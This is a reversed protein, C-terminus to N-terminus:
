LSSQEAYAEQWSSRPAEEPPTTDDMEDDREYGEYGGRDDADDDEDDDEDIMAHQPCAIGNRELVSKYVDILAKTENLRTQLAASEASDVRRKATARLPHASEDDQDLFAIRKRSTEESDDMAAEEGAPNAFPSAGPSFPPPEDLKVWRNNHRGWKSGQWWRTDGEKPEHRYSAATPASDQTQQTAAAPLGQTVQAYTLSPDQERADAHDTRKYRGRLAGQWTAAELPGNTAVADVRPPLTQPRAHAKRSVIHLQTQRQDIVVMCHAVDPPTSSKVAISAKGRFVRRSGDVVTAAWGMQDIIQQMAAETVGTPLGRVYFTEKPDISLDRQAQQYDAAKVRVAYSWPSNSGGNKGVIGLHSRLSAVKLRVDDLSMPETPSGPEKLWIVRTSETMSRPTNLWIAGLGSMKLYEDLHNNKVRILGSIWRGSVRTLRFVDLLPDEALARPLLSAVIQRAKAPKNMAEDVDQATFSVVDINASIVTSSSDTGSISIAITDPPSIPELTDASLQHVWVSIHAKTRASGEDIYFPLLLQRPPAYGLDTKFPAVAIIPHASHVAQVAMTKLVERSSIQYVGPRDPAFDKEDKVAVSWASQCLTIKTDVTAANSKQARRPKVEQWQNDDNQWRKADRSRARSNARQRANGERGATPPTEPAVMHWREMCSQISSRIREKSKAHDRVVKRLKGDLTLLARVTKLPLGLEHNKVCQTLRSLEANDVAGVCLACVYEVASYQLCGVHKSVGYSLMDFSDCLGVQLDGDDDDPRDDEYPLTSSLTREVSSSAQNEAETVFATDNHDLRREQQAASQSIRTRKWSTNPRRPPFQTPSTAASSCTYNTLVDESEAVVPFGLSRLVIADISDATVFHPRQPNFFVACNKTSRRTMSDDLPSMAHLFPATGRFTIMAALDATAADMHQEVEKHWLVAISSFCFNPVCQCMRLTAQAVLIGRARTARHGILSEIAGHTMSRRAAVLPTLYALARLDSVNPEAFMHSKCFVAISRGEPSCSASMPHVGLHLAIKTKVQEHTLADDAPVSLTPQDDHHVQHLIKRKRSYNLFLLPSSSDGSKKNTSPTRQASKMGVSLESTYDHTNDDCCADHLHTAQQVDVLPFRSSTGARARSASAPSVPCAHNRDITLHFMGSCKGSSNPCPTFTYQKTPSTVVIQAHLYAATAAFCLKDAFVGWPKYVALSPQERLVAKKLRKWSKKAATAAWIARWFCNGDGVTYTAKLSQHLVSDDCTMCVGLSACSSDVCPSARLSKSAGQQRLDRTKALAISRRAHARHKRWAAVEAKTSAKHVFDRKKWNTARGLAHRRRGPADIVMKWPARATPLGATYRRQWLHFCPSRWDNSRPDVICDTDDWAMLRMCDEKSMNPFCDDFVACLDDVDEFCSSASMALAFADSKTTSQEDAREAPSPDLLASPFIENDEDGSTESFLDITMSDIDTTAESTSSEFGHPAEEAIQNLFGTMYLDDNDFGTDSSTDSAQSGPETSVESESREHDVHRLLQGLRQRSRQLRFDATQTAVNIPLGLYTIGPLEMPLVLTDGLHVFTQTSDGDVGVNNRSGSAARHDVHNMTMPDHLYYGFITPPGLPRPMDEDCIGGSSCSPLMPTTVGCSVLGAQNFKALHHLVVGPPLRTNM